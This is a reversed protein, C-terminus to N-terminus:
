FKGAFEQVQKDLHKDEVEESDTTLIHEAGEAWHGWSGTRNDNSNDDNPVIMQFLLVAVVCLLTSVIMGFQNALPLAAV